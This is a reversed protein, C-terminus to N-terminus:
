KSKIYKEVKEQLECTLFALILEPSKSRSYVTLLFPRHKGATDIVLSSAFKDLDSIDDTTPRM